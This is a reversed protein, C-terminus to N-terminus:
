TDNYAEFDFVCICSVLIRELPDFGLSVLQLIRLYKFLGLFYFLCIM